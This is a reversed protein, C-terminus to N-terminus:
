LCDHAPCQSFLCVYGLATAAFAAGATGVEELDRQLVEQILEDVVQVLDQSLLFHSLSHPRIEPVGQIPACGEWWRRQGFTLVVQPEM